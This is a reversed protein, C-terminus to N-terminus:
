RAQSAVRRIDECSNLCARLVAFLREPTVEVKSLYYDIDYDALVALEPAKGAQGTRLVIRLWPPCNERIYNCLELGATDTEMVVDVLAVDFTGARDSALIERAEEASLVQTLIFPKEKWKYKRLALKTVTHIDIEDDVVLINWGDGM